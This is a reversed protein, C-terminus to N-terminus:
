KKVNEHLVDLRRDSEDTDVRIESGPCEHRRM